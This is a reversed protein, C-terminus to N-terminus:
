VSVICAYQVQADGSMADLLSALLPATLRGLVLYPVPPMAAGGPDLKHHQLAAKSYCVRSDMSLGAATDPCAAIMCAQTLARTWIHLTHLDALGESRDQGTIHWTAFVTCVTPM